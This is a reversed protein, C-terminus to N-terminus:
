QGNEGGKVLGRAGGSVPVMGPRGAPAAQYSTEGGRGM